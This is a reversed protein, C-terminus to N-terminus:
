SESSRGDPDYRKMRRSVGEGLSKLVDKGGHEIRISNLAAVVNALIEIEQPRLNHAFAENASRGDTSEDPACLKIIALRALSESSLAKKRMEELDHETLLRVTVSEKGIPIRSICRWATDHFVVAGM